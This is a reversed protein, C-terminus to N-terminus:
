SRSEMRLSLKWPSIFHTKSVAIHMGSCRRKYKSVQFIYLPRFASFSIKISKQHKASNIINGPQTSWLQIYWPTSLLSSVLWMDISWNWYILIRGLVISRLVLIQPIVVSNTHNIGGSAEHYPRNNEASNENISIASNTIESRQSIIRRKSVPLYQRTHNWVFDYSTERLWDCFYEEIAEGELFWWWGTTKVDYFRTVVKWDWVNNKKVPVRQLYVKGPFWV